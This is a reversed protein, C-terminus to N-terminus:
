DYVRVRKVNYQTRPEVDANPYGLQILAMPIINEDLQLLERVRKVPTAQPFLGCWCSGVGLAAAALLINEAAASCDQIWYDNIRHGLSRKDDGAVVIMLASNMNSYRSVHRLKEQLEKNKVVYFMWPQMNRASPAAMASKLLQEIIGDDIEADTFDRVSRRKLM